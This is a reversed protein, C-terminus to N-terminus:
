AYIRDEEEERPIKLKSMGSRASQLGISSFGSIYSFISIQSMEKTMKSRTARNRKSNISKGDTTSDGGLGSKTSCHSIQCLQAMEKALKKRRAKRREYSTLSARSTDISGGVTTDDMSKRSMGRMSNLTSGAMSSVYSQSNISFVESNDSSIISAIGSSRQSENKAIETSRTDENIPEMTQSENETKRKKSSIVLPISEVDRKEEPESSDDLKNRDSRKRTIKIKEPRDQTSAQSVRSYTSGISGRRMNISFRQTFRRGLGNLYSPMAVEDLNIEEQPTRDEQHPFRLVFTLYTIVIVYLILSSLSM